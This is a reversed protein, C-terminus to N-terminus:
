YIFIVLLVILLVKSLLFFKFHVIENYQWGVLDDDNASIGFHLKLNLILKFHNYVNAIKLGEM